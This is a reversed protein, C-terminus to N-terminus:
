NGSRPDFGPGRCHSCLTKAVPGGPFDRIEIYMFDYEADTRKYSVKQDFMTNEQDLWTLGSGDYNVATHIYPLTLFRRM